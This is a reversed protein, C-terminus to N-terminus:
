SAGRWIVSFNHGNNWPYAPWLVVAGTSTGGRTGIVRNTAWPGFITGHYGGVTTLRTDQFAWLRTDTPALSWTPGSGTVQAWTYAPRSSSLGNRVTAGTTRDVARFWTNRLQYISITVRDGASTPLGFSFHHWYSTRSRYGYQICNLGGGPRVTIRVADNAAGLVMAATDAGSHATPVTVTTQIYRFGSGSGIMTYGAEGKSYTKGIHAAAAQSSTGASALSPGALGLTGLAAAAVAVAAFIRKM